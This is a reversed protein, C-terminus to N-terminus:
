SLFPEFGLNLNRTTHVSSDSYLIIVPITTNQKIIKSIFTYDEYENNGLMRQLADAFVEMKKNEEEKLDTYLKHAYNVLQARQKITHSWRELKVREAQKIEQVMYNSYWINLGVIFAAIILLLVKWKQKQSYLNM